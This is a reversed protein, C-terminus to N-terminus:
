KHQPFFALAIAGPGAHTGITSGVTCIPIEKIRDRWLTQDSDIYAQLQSDDNGSYALQIPMQYDIGGKEAILQNLHSCSQKTGHAKGLTVIVGNELGLIPKIKLMTGAAGAARSLRGGKVLYELTDVTALLVIKKKASELKAAIEEAHMGEDRLRIAYKILIQEGVTANESDVIAIKKGTEKAAMVASQYTGSLKSSMAIVLIEENKAFADEYAKAYQYPTIQSTVPLQKSSALLEYFQEHTLDVGDYYVTDGFATKLPLFALDSAEAEQKTMDSASDIMIKVSM